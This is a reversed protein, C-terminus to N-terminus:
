FALCNNLTYEGRKEQAAKVESAAAKTATKIRKEDEASEAIPDAVYHQVVRWGLESRDAMKILKQRAEIMEVIKQLADIAVDLPEDDDLRITDLTSTAISKIEECFRFQDVHAPKSLSGGASSAEVQVKPFAKRVPEKGRAALESVKKELAEIADIVARGNLEM